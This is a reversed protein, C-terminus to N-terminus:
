SYEKLFIESQLTEELRKFSFANCKSNKKITIQMTINTKSIIKRHKFIPTDLKPKESEPVISKLNNFSSAFTKQGDNRYLLM